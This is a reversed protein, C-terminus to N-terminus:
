RIRSEFEIAEQRIQERLQALRKTYQSIEQDKEAAITSTTQQNQGILLQLQTSDAQSEAVKRQLRKLKRTLEANMTSLNENDSQLQEERLHSIKLLEEVEKM